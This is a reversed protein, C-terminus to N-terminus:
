NRSHRIIKGEVTYITDEAINTALDAVREISKAALLWSIVAEARAPDAALKEKLIGIFNRYDLDVEDDAALVIRAGATDMNMLSELSQRLMAQAKEGLSQLREGFIPPCQDSDLRPQIGAINVALDGIRELDNNMKLAAVLFRLDVAVPQHLALVKLCEEEVEVELEDIEADNRRVKEALESDSDRVARIALKLNEEVVSSLHFLQKKLRDLETQLHIKM